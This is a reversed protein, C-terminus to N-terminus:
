SEKSDGNKGAQMLLVILLFIGATQALIVFTGWQGVQSLLAGGFGTVAAVLFIFEVAQRPTMGLEVLRHSFHRKDGKMISEGNRWRIFIVSASDFIPVCLALLPAGIAVRSAGEGSYFTGLVAVTALIYGCFMSGADGMFIHAPNLNHYLFGAVSGAFVMLLVCIFNERQPLVCLFFSLAAIVSVGASLGDMNDLFNMANTMGVVWLITVSGSIGVSIYSHWQDPLSSVYPIAELINGIFLDLRIGSLVLVLAGVIQGALKVEPSLARVDDILGLMFIIFAGAFIGTLSRISNEGLFQLVNQDVWDFGLPGVTFLVILNALIVFNFTLYIAVGGMLPIPTKHMKREGPNDVLNLFLAARRSVATLGLAILFSEILAYAFILYWYREM